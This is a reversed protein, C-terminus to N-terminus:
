GLHRDGHRKRLLVMNYHLINEMIDVFLLYFDAIFFCQFYLHPRSIVLDAMIAEDKCAQNVSCKWLM